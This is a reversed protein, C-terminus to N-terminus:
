VRVWRPEMWRVAFGRGVAGPAPGFCDGLPIFMVEDEAEFWKVAGEKGQAGAGPGGHGKGGFDTM